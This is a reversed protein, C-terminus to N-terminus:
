KNGIQKSIEYLAIGTAVSLNLSEVEENHKIQIKQDALDSIVKPVGNDESGVVLVFPKLEEFAIENLNSSSPHKELTLVRFGNNKLTLATQKNTPAYAFQTNFVCGASVKAVARNLKVSGRAPIIIGGINCLASATRAVAGLNHGDMINPLWLIVQGAFSSDVIIEELGKCLFDDLERKLELILGQPSEFDKIKFKAKLEFTGIKKIALKPCYKKISEDLGTPLSELSCWLTHAEQPFKNILAEVAHKGYIFNAL